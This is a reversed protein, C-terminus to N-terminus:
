RAYVPECAEEPTKGVALGIWLTLTTDRPETWRVGFDMQAQMGFTHSFPVGRGPHAEIVLVSDSVADRAHIEFSGSHGPWVNVCGALTMGMTPLTGTRVRGEGQVIPIAAWGGGNRLGAMIDSTTQAHLPVATLLAAAVLLPLRM